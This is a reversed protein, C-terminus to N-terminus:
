EQWECIEDIIQTKMMEMAGLLRLTSKSSTRYLKFDESGPERYIVVLDEIRGEEQATNLDDIIQTAEDNILRTVPCISEVKKVIKM